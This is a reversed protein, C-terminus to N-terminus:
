RGEGRRRELVAVQHVKIRPEDKGTLDNRCICKLYKLKLTAM